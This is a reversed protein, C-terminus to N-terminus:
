GRQKDGQWQGEYLNVVNNSGEAVIQAVRAGVEIILPVFFFMCTGIKDTHFGADFVSSHLIGGNRLVSSRQIIRLRQDSPVVCGQSFTVEYAGPEVRWATCKEGYENVLEEAAYLVRSGLRTKGEKPIFGAISGFSEGYSHLKVMSILNLDIGHQQINEEAIEGTIIKKEVLEKGTLNM